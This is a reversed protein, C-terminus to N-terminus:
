AQIMAGPWCGTEAPIRGLPLPVIGSSPWSSPLVTAIVRSGPRWSCGVLWGIRAPTTRSHALRGLGSWLEGLELSEVVRVVALGDTQRISNQAVEPVGLLDDLLDEQRRPAGAVGVIGRAARGM